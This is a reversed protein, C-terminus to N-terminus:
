MGKISDMAECPRVPALVRGNIEVYYEHNGRLVYVHEPATVFLQMVTRLIGNYSFIGRDIYDGLLVLKPNPNHEPDDKYRQVKAFFDSQLIAAKLCSYCGHLDGLVTLDYDKGPQTPHVYIHGDL